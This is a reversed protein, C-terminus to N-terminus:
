PEGRQVFCCKEGIPDRLGTKGGDLGPDGRGDRALAKAQVSLLDPAADQQITDPTPRTSPSSTNNTEMACM